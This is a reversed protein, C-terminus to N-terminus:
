APPDGIRVCHEEASDTRGCRFVFVGSVCGYPLGGVGCDRCLIGAVCSMTTKCCVASYGQLM